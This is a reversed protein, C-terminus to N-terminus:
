EPPFPNWPSPTYAGALAIEREIESSSLVAEIRPAMYDVLAVSLEEKLKQWNEGPDSLTLENM